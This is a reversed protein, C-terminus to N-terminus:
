IISVRAIECLKIFVWDKIQEEFGLQNFPVLDPHTKKEPDRVEGYTWGMDVYAQMWSNHIEEPDTCHDPGCERKIVELFQKKFPAERLEWTEPVIPANAEIAQLRAAEYVFKARRENLTM